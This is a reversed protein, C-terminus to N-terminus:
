SYNSKSLKLENENQDILIVKLPKIKQSLLADLCREVLIPHRSITNAVSIYNM